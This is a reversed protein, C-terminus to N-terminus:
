QYLDCVLCLERWLTESRTCSSGHFPMGGSTWWADSCYWRADLHNQRPLYQQAWVDFHRTRPIILRVHLSIHSPFHLFIQPLLAHLFFLYSFLRSPSVRLSSSFLFTFFPFIIRIFLFIRFYPIFSSVLSPPFLNSVPHSGSGWTVHKLYCCLAVTHAFLRAGWCLQTRPTMDVEGQRYALISDCTTRCKFVGSSHLFNTIFVM